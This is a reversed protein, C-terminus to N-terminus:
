FAPPFGVEAISEATEREGSLHKWGLSLQQNVEFVRSASIRLKSYTDFSRSLQPGLESTLGLIKYKWWAGLYQHHGLVPWSGATLCVVWRRPGRISCVSGM